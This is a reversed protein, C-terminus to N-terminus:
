AKRKPFRRIAPFCFRVIFAESLKEPFQFHKQFARPAHFVVIPDSLYVLHQSAPDVVIASGAHFGFDSSQSFPQSICHPNDDPFLPLDGSLSYFSQDSQLDVSLFGFAQGEASSAILEDRM